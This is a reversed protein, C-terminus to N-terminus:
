ERGVNKNKIKGYIWGITAGIVFWSILGGIIVQYNQYIPLRLAIALANFFIKTFMLFWGLSESSSIVYGILIVVIDLIGLVIGGKFWYSRKKWGM